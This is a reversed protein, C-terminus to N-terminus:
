HGAHQSLVERVKAALAAMVFPKTMAEMSSDLHGNAISANEALGAILYDEAVSPLYLM